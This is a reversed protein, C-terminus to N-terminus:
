QTSSFFPLKLSHKSVTRRTQEPITSCLLKITITACSAILYDYAPFVLAVVHFIVAQFSPAILAHVGIRRANMGFGIMLPRDTTLVCDLYDADQTIPIHACSYM